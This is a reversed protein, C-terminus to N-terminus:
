RPNLVVYHDAACIFIRQFLLTPLVGDEDRLPIDKGVSVPTVFPINSMIHTGIRMEQPPLVAFTPQAKGVNDAQPTAQELLRLTPEKTGAYLIPGDSGSDLQLLIQQRGTGSLHVSVVLREAFPM